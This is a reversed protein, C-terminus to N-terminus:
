KDLADLTNICISMGNLVPKQCGREANVQTKMLIILFDLQHGESGLYIISFSVELGESRWSFCKRLIFLGQTLNRLVM